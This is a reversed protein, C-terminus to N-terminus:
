ARSVCGRIQIFVGHELLVGYFLLVSPLRDLMYKSREVEVRTMHCEGSRVDSCQQCETGGDKRQVPFCCVPLFTYIIPLRTLINTQPRFISQSMTRLELAM